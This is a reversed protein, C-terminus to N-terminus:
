EEPREECITKHSVPGKILRTYKKWPGDSVKIEKKNEIRRVPPEQWRFVERGDETLEISLNSVRRGLLFPNRGCLLTDFPLHQVRHPNKQPNRAYNALEMITYQAQAFIFEVIYGVKQSGWKPNLVTAVKDVIADERNIWEWTVLWANIKGNKLRLQDKYHNERALIAPCEARDTCAECLAPHRLEGIKHCFNWKSPPDYRPRKPM